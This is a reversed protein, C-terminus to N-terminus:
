IFVLKIGLFNSNLIKYVTVKQNKREGLFHYYLILIFQCNSYCKNSTLTDLGHVPTKFTLEIYSHTFFQQFHCYVGFFGLDDPMQFDVLIYFIM